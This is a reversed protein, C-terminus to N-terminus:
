TPREQKSYVFWLLLSFCFFCGLLFQDTLWKPGWARLRPFKPITGAVRWFVCVYTCGVHLVMVSVVFM